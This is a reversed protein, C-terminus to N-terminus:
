QSRRAAPPRPQARGGMGAGRTQAAPVPPPPTQRHSQIQSSDTMEKYHVMKVSFILVENLHPPPRIESDVCLYSGENLAWKLDCSARLYM